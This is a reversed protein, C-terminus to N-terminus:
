EVAPPLSQPRLDSSDYVAKRLSTDLDTPALVSRCELCALAWYHYQVNASTVYPRRFGELALGCTPCDANTQGVYFWAPKELRRWEGVVATGPFVEAVAEYLGLLEGGRGDM